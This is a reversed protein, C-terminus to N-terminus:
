PAPWYPVQGGNTKVAVELVRDRQADTLFAVEGSSGLVFLGHVGAELLFSIHRELSAADV